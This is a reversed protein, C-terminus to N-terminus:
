DLRIFNYYDTSGWVLKGDIYGADRTVLLNESLEFESCLSAGRIICENGINKGKWKGDIFRVLTDCKSNRSGDLSWNEVIIGSETEIFINYRQAYPNKEGEYHYWQKSLYKNGDVLEWSIFIWAYQSPNSYAQERNSWCGVLCNLFEM